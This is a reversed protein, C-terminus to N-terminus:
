ANIKNINNNDCLAENIIKKQLILGDKISSTNLIISNIKEYSSNVITTFHIQQTARPYIHGAMDNIGDAKIIHINNIKVSPNKIFGIPIKNDVLNCFNIEDFKFKCKNILKIFNSISKGTHSHDIIILKRMAYRPWNAIKLYKNLYNCFKNNQDETVTTYYNPEFILNLGSIPINIVKYKYCKNLYTYLYAPTAGLCLFLLENKDENKYINDIQRSIDQLSLILNSFKLEGGGQNKKQYEEQSIRKKKGNKYIKYYYGQNSKYFKM